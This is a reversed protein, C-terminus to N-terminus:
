HTIVFNIDVFTAEYYILTMKLPGDEIQNDVLSCHWRLHRVLEHEQPRTFSLESTGMSLCCQELTHFLLSERKSLDRFFDLFFDTFDVLLSFFHCDYYIFVHQSSEHIGLMESIQSVPNYNEGVRKAFFM